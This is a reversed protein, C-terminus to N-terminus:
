VRRIFAFYLISVVVLVLNLIDLVKLPDKHNLKNSTAMLTLFTKPCHAIHDKCANGAMNTILNYTDSILIHIVLYIILTRIFSFFLIIDSRM